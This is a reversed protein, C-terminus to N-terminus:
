FMKESLITNINTVIYLNKIGATYILKPVSFKHVNSIIGMPYDRQMIINNFPKVNGKFSGIGIKTITNNIIKFLESVSVYLM